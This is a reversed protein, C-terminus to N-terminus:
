TRNAIHEVSQFFCVLALLRCPLGMLIPRADCIYTIDLAFKPQPNGVDAFRMTAKKVKKWKKQSKVKKWGGNFAHTATPINSGPAQLFLLFLLSVCTLVMLKRFTRIELQWHVSM